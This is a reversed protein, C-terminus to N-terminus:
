DGTSVHSVSHQTLGFQQHYTYSIPLYICTLCVLIMKFRQTKAYMYTLLKRVTAHERVHVCTVHTYKRVTANKIPGLEPTCPRFGYFAAQSSHNPTQHSLCTEPTYSFNLHIHFPYPTGSILDGLFSKKRFIKVHLFDERSSKPSKSKQGLGQQSLGFFSPRVPPPPLRSTPGTSRISCTPGPSAPPAPPAPSAPVALMVPVAPMVPMVPVVPMVPMVLMVPMVPMVPSAPVAPVVPMVLMVPM